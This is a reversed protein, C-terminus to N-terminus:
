FGTKAIGTEISFPRLLAVILLILLLVARVQGGFRVGHFILESLPALSAALLVFATSLAPIQVGRETATVTVLILMALPAYLHILTYDYSAPPLLISCVALILVQNSVPMRRIRTFFLITGGCAVVIMYIRLVTSLPIETSYVAWMRKIVSFLSHDFGIEQPVVNLVIKTQFAALGDQIHRWAFPIDPVVLWLSTLTVVAAVTFGFFVPRWRRQSIHLGLYIFPFIKMSGAVAFCAASSYGRGRLFLWIGSAILLWVWLELNGQKGDLIFPYSGLITVGCFLLASSPLLGCRIAARAVFLAAGVSVFFLFLFFAVTRHSPFLYILKYLVAMPAPYAFPFQSDVAFFDTNHFHQFKPYFGTLDLAVQHVPTLPWNYPYPLRFLLHCILEVALCLLTLTIGVFLFLRLPSPLALQAMSPHTTKAFLRNVLSM